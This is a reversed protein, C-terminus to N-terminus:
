LHIPASKECVDNYQNNFRKQNRNHQSTTRKVHSIEIMKSM